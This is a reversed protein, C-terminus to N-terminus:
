PKSKLMTITNVSTLPTPADAVFTFLVQQKHTEGYEPLMQELTGKYHRDVPRGKQFLFHDETQTGDRKIYRLGTVFANQVSTPKSVTLQKLEGDDQRVQVGQYSLLALIDNETNSRDGDVFRVWISELEAYPDNM